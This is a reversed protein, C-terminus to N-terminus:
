CLDFYTFFKLLIQVIPNPLCCALLNQLNGSRTDQDVENKAFFTNLEAASCRPIKQFNMVQRNTPFLSLSPQEQVSNCKTKGLILIYYLSFQPNIWQISEKYLRYILAHTTAGENWSRAVNRVEVDLQLYASHRDFYVRSFRSFTKRISSRTM